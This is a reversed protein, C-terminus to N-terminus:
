IMYTLGELIVQRTACDNFVNDAIAGTDFGESPSYSATTMPPPLPPEAEDTHREDREVISKDGDAVVDDM